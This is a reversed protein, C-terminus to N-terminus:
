ANSNSEIIRYCNNFYKYLLKVEYVVISNM